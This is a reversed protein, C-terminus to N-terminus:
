ARLREAFFDLVAQVGTEQRQETLVSHDRPSASPFEVARFRDGLVQQLTAFRTGVARDGTYRLGLVPCDTRAVVADLDAPSLGLDAGRARSVAFPLSPQSLVPAVTHEDVMMALAFGGTLCMGVAGVGPGGLEEHLRRALARCWVTAPSTRGLAWTTFERAVCARAVQGLLYPGSPARGPTGFLSPMAVTFGADAVEDAFSRVAPTVGPIEHIVVVGPGTGRRYVPKTVGDYTFTGLDWGPLPPSM